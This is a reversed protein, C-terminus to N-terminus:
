KEHGEKKKIIGLVEDVMEKVVGLLEWPIEAESWWDGAKEKRSVEIKFGKRDFQAAYISMVIRPFPNGNQGFVRIALKSEHKGINKLKAPDLQVWNKNQNPQNSM